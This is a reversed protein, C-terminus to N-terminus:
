RGGFLDANTSGIEPPPPEKITSIPKQKYDTQPFNYQNSYGYNRPQMIPSDSPIGKWALITKYMTEGGIKISVPLVFVWLVKEFFDLIEKPILTIEVGLGKRVIATGITAVIILIITFVLM